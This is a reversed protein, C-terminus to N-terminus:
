STQAIEDNFQVKVKQPNVHSKYFIKLSVDYQKMFDTGLINVNEYSGVSKLVDAKRNNILVRAWDDKNSNRQKCHSNLTSMTEKTLASVPSGTDIKFIVNLMTPCDKDYLRVPLSVLPRGKIGWVVGNVTKSYENTNSIGLYTVNFIPIALKTLENHTIDPIDLVMM